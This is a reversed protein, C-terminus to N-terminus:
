ELEWGTPVNGKPKPKPKPKPEPKPKPKPKPKAEEKPKPKPKPEEVSTVLITVTVADRVYEIRVKGAGEYVGDPRAKGDVVLAVFAPHPAPAPAGAAPAPPPVATKKREMIRGFYGAATGVLFVLAYIVVTVAVPREPAAAAPRPAEEAPRSEPPRRRRGGRMRTALARAAAEDGADPVPESEPEPEAAAGGEEGAAPAPVAEEPSPPEPAPTQPWAEPQAGTGTFFGVYERPLLELMEDEDPPVYRPIERGEAKAQELQDRHELKHQQLIGIREEVEKLLGTWKEEDEIIQAALTHVKKQEGFTKALSSPYLDHAYADLAKRLHADALELAEQETM